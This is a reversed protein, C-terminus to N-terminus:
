KSLMFLGLSSADGDVVAAVVGISARCRVGEGLGGGTGSVRGVRGFLIM